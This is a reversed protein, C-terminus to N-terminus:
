LVSFHSSCSMGGGDGGMEGGVGEARKEGSGGWGYPIRPPCRIGGDEGM